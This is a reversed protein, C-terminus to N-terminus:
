GNEYKAKLKALDALELRKVIDAQVKKHEKIKNELEVKLESTYNDIANSFWLGLYDFRADIVYVGYKPVVQDWNRNENFRPGKQDWTEFKINLIESGNLYIYVNRQGSCGYDYSYSVENQICEMVYDCVEKFLDEYSVKINDENKIKFTNFKFDDQEGCDVLVSVNPYEKEM